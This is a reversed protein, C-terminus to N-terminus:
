AEPETETGDTETGDTETGDEPDPEPEQPVLPERAEEPFPNVTTWGNASGSPRWAYLHLHTNMTPLNMPTEYFRTAYIKNTKDVVVMFTFHTWLEFTLQFEAEPDYVGIIEPETLQEAPRDVNTVCRALADEWSSVEWNSGKPVKFAYADIDSTTKLIPDEAVNQSYLAICMRTGQKEDKFCGACLAIAAIFTLIQTVRKM